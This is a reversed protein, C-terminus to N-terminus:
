VAKPPGAEPQVDPAKVSVPPPLEGARDKFKAAAEILGASIAPDSTTKAMQLLAAAAQRAHDRNESV